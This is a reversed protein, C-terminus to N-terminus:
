SRSQFSDLIHLPLPLYSDSENDSYVAIGPALLCAIVDHRGQGDTRLVPTQMVSEVSFFRTGSKAPTDRNERPSGGRDM